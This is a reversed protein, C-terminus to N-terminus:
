GTRRQSAPELPIVPRSVLLSFPRCLRASPEPINTSRSGCSWVLPEVEVDQPVSLLGWPRDLRHVGLLLLPLLLM